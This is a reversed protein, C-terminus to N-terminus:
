RRKRRLDTVSASGPVPTRPASARRLARRAVFGSRVRYYADPVFLWARAGDFGPAPLLNIAAVM